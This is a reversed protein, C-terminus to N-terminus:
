KQIRKCDILLIQLRHGVKITKELRNTLKTTFILSEYDILILKGNLTHVKRKPDFKRHYLLQLRKKQSELHTSIMKNPTTKM